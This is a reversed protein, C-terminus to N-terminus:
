SKIEPVNKVIYAILKDLRLNTEVMLTNLTLIEEMLMQNGNQKEVMGQQKEARLDVWEIYGCKCKYNEYPKNNKKSIGQNHFMDGGCQPCLKAM